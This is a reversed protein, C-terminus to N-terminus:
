DMTFKIPFNMMIIPAGCLSHAHRKMGYMTKHNLPIERYVIHNKTIKNGEINVAAITWTKNEEYPLIAALM